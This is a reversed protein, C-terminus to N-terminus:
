DFHEEQLLDQILNSLKKRFEEELNKSSREYEDVLKLVKAVIKNRKALISADARGLYVSRVKKGERRSAYLYPGHPCRRCREKGCDVYKIYFNLGYERLIERILKM